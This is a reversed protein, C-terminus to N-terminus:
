GDMIGGKKDSDKPALFLEIGGDSTKMCPVDLKAISKYKKQYDLHEQMLSNGNQPLAYVGQSVVSMVLAISVEKKM